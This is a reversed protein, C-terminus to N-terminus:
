KDPVLELLLLVVDQLLLLEALDFQANAIFVLLVM